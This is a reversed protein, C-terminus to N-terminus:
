EQQERSQIIHHLFPRHIIYYAGCYKARLRAVNIEALPVESDKWRLQPPHAHPFMTRREALQAEVKKLKGEWNVIWLEESRRFSSIHADNFCAEVM